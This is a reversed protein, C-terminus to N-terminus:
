SLQGDSRESTNGLFRDRLIAKSDTGRNECFWYSEIYEDGMLEACIFAIRAEAGGLGKDCSLCRM